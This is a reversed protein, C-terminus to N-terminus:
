LLGLDAEEPVQELDRRLSDGVVRTEEAEEGLDLEIQDENELELEQAEAM